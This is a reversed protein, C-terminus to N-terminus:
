KRPANLARLAAAKSRYYGTVLLGNSGAESSKTDGDTYCYYDAGYHDRYRWLKFFRYWDDQFRKTAVCSWNMELTTDYALECRPEDFNAM